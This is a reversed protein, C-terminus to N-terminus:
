LPELERLATLAARADDVSVAPDAAIAALEARARIARPDAAPLRALAARTPIDRPNWRAAVALQDPDSGTATRRADTPDDPDIPAPTALADRRRLLEAAQEGRGAATSADAAVTLADAIADPGALDIADRAVEIAAIPRAGAILARAGAILVPAADGSAAAAATLDLQAAPDDGSRAKVSALASLYPAEPSSDVARQWLTRARGLDGLADMVFGGAAAGEAEDVHADIAAALLREALAPDRRYARAAEAYSSADGGYRAAAAVGIADAATPATTIPDPGLLATLADRDPGAPIAAVIREIRDASAGALIAEAALVAAPGAALGDPSGTADRLASDVEDRQGAARLLTPRAWAAVNGAIAVRPRLLALWRGPAGLAIAARLTVITWATAEAPDTTPPWAASADILDLEWGPDAAAAVASCDPTPAPAAPVCHDHLPSAHAPAVVGGGLAVDRADADFKDEGPVSWWRRAHLLDAIAAPDAGGDALWPELVDLTARRAGFRWAIRGIRARMAIPDTVDPAIRPLLAAMDAIGRARVPDSAHRLEGIALGQDARLQLAPDITEGLQAAHALDAVASPAFRAARVWARRVLLHALRRRDDASWRTGIPGGVREIELLQRIASGPRDHQQDLRALARRADLDGGHSAIRFELDARAGDVGKKAILADVNAPQRAGCGAVLCVLGLARVCPHYTM